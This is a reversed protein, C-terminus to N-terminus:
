LGDDSIVDGLTPDDYHTGKIHLSNSKKPLELPKGMHDQVELTAQRGSEDYVPANMGGPLGEFMRVPKPPTKKQIKKEAFCAACQAHPAPGVAVKAGIQFPQLSFIDTGCIAQYYFIRKGDKVVNGLDTKIKHQIM